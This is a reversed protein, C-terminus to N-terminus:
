CTNEAIRHCDPCLSILNTLLNAEIYNENEGPIYGFKKFPTIHHVDLKRGVEKQSIRCKQCIYGDRKRASAAQEAWNPGYYPIRGGKWRGHNEGSFRRTRSKGACQRNCFHEKSREIRYKPRKLMKGCTSCPVEVSNFEAHDPGSPANGQRRWEADCERSCFRHRSKPSFKGLQRQFQEGCQECVFTIITREPMITEGKLRGNYGAQFSSGLILMLTASAKTGMVPSLVGSLRVRSWVRDRRLLQVRLM